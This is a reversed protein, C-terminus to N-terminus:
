RHELTSMYFTSFTCVHSMEFMSGCSTGSIFCVLISSMTSVFVDPVCFSNNGCAVHACTFVRPVFVPFIFYVDFMHSIVYSMNFISVDCM